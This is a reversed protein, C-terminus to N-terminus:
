NYSFNRLLRNLRDAQRSLTDGADASEKASQATQHVIETVHDLSSNIAAIERSQEASSASISRIYDGSERISETIMVLQNSTGEAIKVGLAAKELSKSILEATEQASAASKSALNRVEDAVVAFGRGSQGARAAEVAANLALINTQFAIEDITAVVRNIAICADNIQEVAAVMNQMQETGSIAGASIGDFLLAANEATEANTKTKETIMAVSGALAQVESLQSSASDALHKAEDAIQVSTDALQDSGSQFSTFMGTLKAITKEIAISMSDEPSRRVIKMSLDGDAIKDLIGIQSRTSEIIQTFAASLRGIEDGTDYHQTLDLDGVSLKEASATLGNIPRGVKRNIYAISLFAFLVSFGLVILILQIGVSNVNAMIDEMAIDAGVIGIVDGGSGVIPAYGTVLWGFDEYYYNKTLLATGQEIVTYVEDDHATVTEEYLFDLPEDGTEPNYGEAYYTFCDDYDADLIYLYKVDNDVATKDAFAKIKDWQADKKQESMAQTFGDPDIAASVTKAISLARQGSLKITETRYLGFSFAAVIVTSVLIM